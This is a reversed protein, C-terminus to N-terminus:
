SVFLAMSFLLTTVAFTAIFGFAIVQKYLV